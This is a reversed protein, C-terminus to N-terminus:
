LLQNEAKKQMVQFRSLDSLYGVIVRGEVEVWAHAELHNNESKAVGINFQCPLDYINMLTNTTLAKALCMVKGPSLRASYHIASAIFRATIPSNIKKQFRSLDELLKKLRQFPLFFLSLRILNLLLYAQIFLKQEQKHLNYFKVLKSMSLKLWVM